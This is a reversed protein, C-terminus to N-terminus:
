CTFSVKKFTEGIKVRSVLNWFQNIWQEHESDNMQENQENTGLTGSLPDPVWPLEKTELLFTLAQSNEMICILLFFWILRPATHAQCWSFMFVVVQPLDVVRRSASLKVDFMAKKQSFREKLSM